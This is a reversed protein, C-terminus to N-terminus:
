PHIPIFKDASVFETKDQGIPKLIFSGLGLGEQMKENLGIVAKQYIADLCEISISTEMESLVVDAFERCIGNEIKLSEIYDTIWEAQGAMMKKWDNIEDIMTDSLTIDKGVINKLTTYGFMRMIGKWLKRFGNFM